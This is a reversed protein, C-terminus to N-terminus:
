VRRLETGFLAAWVLASTPTVRTELKVAFDFQPELQFPVRLKIRAGAAPVGNSASSRETATGQGYLAAYGVSGGGGPWFQLPGLLVEDNIIRLIAATGSILNEVNEPATTPDCFFGIEYVKMLRGAPLIGSATLSTDIDQKGGSTVKPSTGQAQPVQFLINEGTATILVDDYLFKDNARYVRKQASRPLARARVGAPVSTRVM